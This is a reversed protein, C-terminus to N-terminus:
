SSSGSGIIARMRRRARAAVSNRAAGADALTQAIGEGIGRGAGTVVAVDDSLDFLKEISENM